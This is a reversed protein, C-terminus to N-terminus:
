HHRCKSTSSESKVNQQDVIRIKGNQQGVIRIIVNQQKVIRIIVNQQKVILIIVNQQVVIRIKVNQQVDIRINVNQKKVHEVFFASFPEVQTRAQRDPLAERHRGLQRRSPPAELPRPQQAPQQQGPFSGV